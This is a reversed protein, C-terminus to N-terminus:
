DRAQKRSGRLKVLVAVLICVVLGVIIVSVTVGSVVAM